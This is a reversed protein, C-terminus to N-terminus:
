APDMLNVSVFQLGNSNSIEGVDCSYFSGSSCMFIFRLRGGKIGKGVM